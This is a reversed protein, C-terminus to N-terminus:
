RVLRTGNEYVVIEPGQFQEAITNGAGYFGDWWSAYRAIQGAAFGARDTDNGAWAYSLILLPTLAIIAGAAGNIKITGQTGDENLPAMFFKCNLLGAGDKPSIGGILIESVLMPRLKGQAIYFTTALV